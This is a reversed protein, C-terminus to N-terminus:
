LEDRNEWIDYLRVINPHDLLKMICIERELGFPILKGDSMSTEQEASQILNALSVARVKEAMAKSIIKAAGYQGTGSHRVLRVRSCGGRGITRGLQWPGIHTKRRRNSSSANTSTTSIESDRKSNHPRGEHAQVASLRKNEPSVPKEHRVALTGNAVLSENHPLQTPPPPPSSSPMYGHAEAEKNPNPNRRQTRPVENARNTGDGLVRRRTPPRGYYASDM